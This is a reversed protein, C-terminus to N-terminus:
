AAHTGALRHAKTRRPAVASRSGGGARPRVHWAGTLAHRRDNLVVLYAATTAVRV